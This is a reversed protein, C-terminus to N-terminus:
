VYLETPEWTGSTFYEENAIFWKHLESTKSVFLMKDFFIEVQSISFAALVLMILLAFIIFIRGM